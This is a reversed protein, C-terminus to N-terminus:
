YQKQLVVVDQFNLCNSKERSDWYGFYKGLIKFNSTHAALWKEHFAVNGAQVKKDMLAHNEFFHPFSFGENKALREPSDFLFFTAFVTGGPKLVRHIESLYRAVEGPLMHTFVSIVCAFDFANEPYPFIFNSADSGDDTYLDNKLPIHLFRFNPHRSSVNEHCWVVGKEVVDFGEYSGNKTLFDAMPVAVRGIGSGVDLVRHHPKLFAVEQFDIVLKKGDALFDGSGTFIMGKPPAIETTNKGSIKKFFSNFFDSPFYWIRRALFRM